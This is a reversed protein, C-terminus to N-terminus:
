RRHSGLSAGVTGPACGSGSALRRHGWSSAEPGRGTSSSKGSAVPLRARAHVQEHLAEAVRALGLLLARDAHEEHAVLRVEARLPLDLRHVRAADEYLIHLRTSTEGDGVRPDHWARSGATAVAGM